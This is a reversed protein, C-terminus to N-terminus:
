HAASDEAASPSAQRRLEDKAQGYVRQAAERVEGMSEKARETAARRAPGFYRRETPTAPLAAGIAAGVALGIAGIVLPENELTEDFRDRAARGYEGAKVQAEHALEGARSRARAAGEVAQHQAESLKEKAKEAGQTLRAKAAGTRAKVKGGLTEHEDYGEHVPYYGDDYGAGHGRRTQNIALWAVGLGILAIPIPNTKLQEVTTHMVKNSTEGMMRTAEHILEQPQMKAKLAEVTRDLRGRVEEVEHELEASSKTM